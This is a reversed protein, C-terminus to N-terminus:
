KNDKLHYVWSDPFLTSDISNNRYDLAESQTSFYAVSVYFMKDLLSKFVYLDTIGKNGLFREYKRLNKTQKFVNVIVYYGEKSPSYDRLNVVKVYDKTNETDTDTKREDDQLNNGKKATGNDRDKTNDKLRNEDAVQGQTTKNNTTSTSQSNNKINTNAKVTDKDETRKDKQKLADTDYETNLDEKDTSNQKKETNRPQNPDYVEFAVRRVLQRALKSEKPVSNDEGKYVLNLRNPDIGFRTVMEYVREARRRSLDINYDYDGLEDAFGIIDVKAQPNANLYKILFNIASISGTTIKTKDFDFYVNVYQGNIMEKMQANTLVLDNEDNNFNNIIVTNAKLQNALEDIRSSLTDRLTQQEKQAQALQNELQLIQNAAEPERDGYEYHWDAHKAKKGFYYTLGVTNTYMVGTRSRDTASVRSLGDLTVHHTLNSIVTFDVSLMFRDDLRVMGTVGGVISFINDYNRFDTTNPAELFSFGAGLHLQMGFTETFEEWNMVRHMNMVGRLTTRYMKNTFEFSQSDSTFNDYSFDWALGFKTNFMKRVNFDFHQIDPNFLYNHTTSGYGETFPRIAIHTGVNLNVSWLNYNKEKHKPLTDAQKELLEPQLEMDQEVLTQASLGTVITLCLYLNLLFHKTNM